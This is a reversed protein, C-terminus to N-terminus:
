CLIFDGKGVLCNACSHVCVIEGTKRAMDETQEKVHSHLPKWRLKLTWQPQIM